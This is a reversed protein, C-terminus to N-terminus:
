RKLLVLVAAIAAALGADELFAQRAEPPLASSVATILIVAVLVRQNASLRALGGRSAQASLEDVDIPRVVELNETAAGVDADTVLVTAGPAKATVGAAPAGITLTGEGALTAAPGWPGLNQIAALVEDLGINLAESIRQAAPMVGEGWTSAVYRRLQELASAQEQTYRDLLEDLSPFGGSFGITRTIESTAALEGNGDIIAQVASAMRLLRPDDDPLALIQRALDALHEAAPLNRDDDPYEDAKGERWVATSLLEEALFGAVTGQDYAAYVARELALDNKPSVREPAHGRAQDIARKATTYNEGTSAMRERIAAKQDANTMTRGRTRSVWAQGGRHSCMVTLLGRQGESCKDEDSFRPTALIAQLTAPPAAPSSCVEDRSGATWARRRRGPYLATKSVVYASLMPIAALGVGSCVNVIRGHGRALMGPLVARTCYLPGRLNVELARWWQDPDTAALPGVLGFQGANNVLLDVPGIADEVAAAMGVERRDTVDCRVALAHRGRGEIQGAVGSVEEESRACVAVAAGADSLALAIARGIGRGAGTVLAVQGELRVLPLHEWLAM